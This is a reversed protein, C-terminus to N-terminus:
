CGGNSLGKVSHHYYLVGNKFEYAKSKVHWKTKKSKSMGEVPWAFKVNSPNSPKTSALYEAMMKMLTAWPVKSIVLQGKPNFWSESNTAIAHLHPQLTHSKHNELGEAEEDQQINNPYYPPEIQGEPQLM